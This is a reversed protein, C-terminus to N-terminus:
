VIGFISKLIKHNFYVHLYVFIDIIYVNFSMNCNSTNSTNFVNISINIVNVIPIVNSVDFFSLILIEILIVIDKIIM